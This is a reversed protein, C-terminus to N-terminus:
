VYQARGFTILGCGYSNLIDPNIKIRYQLNKKLHFMINEKGLLVVELDPHMNCYKTALHMAALTQDMRGGFAGFCFLQKWNNEVCFELAKDFDNQEWNSVYELHKGKEEYYELIRNDICDFDGVLARM